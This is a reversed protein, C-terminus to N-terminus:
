STVLRAKLADIAALSKPKHHWEFAKAEADDQVDQPERGTREAIADRLSSLAQQMLPTHRDPTNVHALKLLTEYAHQLADIPVETEESM